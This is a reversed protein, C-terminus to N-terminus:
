HTALYEKMRVPYDTIIGDVQWAVMREMEELSNVTWPLVRVGKQQFKQVIESSLGNVDPSFYDIRNDICVKLLEDFQEPGKGQLGEVLYSTQIRM